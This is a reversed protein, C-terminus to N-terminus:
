RLVNLTNHILVYLRDGFVRLAVPHAVVLPLILFYGLPSPIYVWILFVLSGVIITFFLMTMVVLFVDLFDILEERM